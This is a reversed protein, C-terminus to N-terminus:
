QSAPATGREVLEHREDVVLKMMESPLVETLFPFIVRTLWRREDVLDVFDCGPRHAAYQDIVSATTPRLFPPVAAAARM